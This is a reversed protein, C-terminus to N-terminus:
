LLLPGASRRDLRKRICVLDATRRNIFRRIEDPGRIKSPLASTRMAPHAESGFDYTSEAGGGGAGVAATATTAAEGATTVVVCVVCVM